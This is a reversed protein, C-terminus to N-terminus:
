TLLWRGWTCADLMAREIEEEVSFEQWILIGYKRSIMLWDCTPQDEEFM